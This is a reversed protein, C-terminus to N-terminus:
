KGHLVAALRTALEDVEDAYIVPVSDPILGEPFDTGAAALIAAAGAEIAEQVADTDHGDWVSSRTIREVCCYIDGPLVLGPEDALGAVQLDPFV